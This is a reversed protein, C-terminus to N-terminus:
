SRPHFEKHIEKLYIKDINTYIQTTTIDSHGLMEQVSRLDAGGELLHTAFSHRLVHPSVKKTIGARLTNEHLINWISMRTLKEGRHNLFLIGQSKGKKSNSPRLEKLYLTLFSLAMKGIPVIREKRGKGFVRILGDDMMLNKLKLDVLETVRIGSAYLLSLIAQDRLAYKKTLDVSQIIKDVEEVSLTTPIKRTLRPPVLLESPDNKTIKLQCLYQHFGRITSFLRHITSSKKFNSKIDMKGTYNLDNVFNEIHSAKISNISTLHLESFLFHTYKKLDLSYAYLTNNSLRREFQLHSLYETALEWLPNKREVAPENIM